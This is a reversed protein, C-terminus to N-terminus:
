KKEFKRVFIVCQEKSLIIDRCWLSVSSVSVGLQKAISKISMGKERLSRAQMKQEFKAM